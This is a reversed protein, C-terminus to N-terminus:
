KRALPRNTRWQHRLRVIRCPEPGRAAQDKRRRAPLRGQLIRTRLQCSPFRRQQREFRPHHVRDRRNELQKYYLM